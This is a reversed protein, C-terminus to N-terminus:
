APPICPDYPVGPCKTGCGCCVPCDLFGQSCCYYPEPCCGICGQGCEESFGGCAPQCHGCLCFHQAAVTPFYFDALRQLPRLLTAGFSMPRRMPEGVFSALDPAGNRHSITGIFIVAGENASLAATSATDFVIMTFRTDGGSLHVAFRDAVQPNVRAKVERSWDQLTATSAYKKNVAKYAFQGSLMSRLYDIAAARFLDPQGVAPTKRFPGETSWGASAIWTTALGIFRMFSRREM